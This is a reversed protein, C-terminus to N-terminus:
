RGAHAAVAGWRRDLVRACLHELQAAQWARLSPEAAEFAARGDWLSVTLLEHVGVAALYAPTAQHARLRALHEEWTQDAGM